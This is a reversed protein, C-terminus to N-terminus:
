EVTETRLLDIEGQSDLRREVDSTVYSVFILTPYLPFEPVSLIGEDDTFNSEITIEFLDSGRHSFYEGGKFSSERSTFKVGLAGSILREAEDLDGGRFGYLNFRDPM